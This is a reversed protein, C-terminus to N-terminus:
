HDEADRMREARAAQERVLDQLLMKAKTPVDLGGRQTTKSGLGNSVTVTATGGEVYYTGHHTAGDIEVSM